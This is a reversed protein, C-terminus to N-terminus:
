KSLYELVEPYSKRFNEILENFRGPFYELELSTEEAKGVFPPLIVAANKYKLAIVSKTLEDFQKLLGDNLEPCGPKFRVIVKKAECCPMEPLDITACLRAGIYGFKVDRGNVTVLEPIARGYLYLQFKRTEPMGAYQGERPSIELELANKDPCATKFYTYAYETAYDKSDGNDEYMRGKGEGGPFVSIRACKPDNQVDMVSDDYMPIVAGAKVYVPYELISFERNLVQGGKLLTGTRWEFWDNGEPLWVKVSSVGKEMPAGIPAILMDDGFMFERDFTYSEEANPYDYYMPRCLSVGTDYCERSMTYIYPVLNYRLRIAEKQANFFDGRFNWIEKNLVANKTSHTRLIPTFVGYQMWRTYLEPDLVNEKDIWKPFMHGGIDHSWYGYLVNSACNTFYPQYELSKWSVYTDGSFGIQYRHNGLGGWRHYLMPRHSSNREMDSFFLYNLWWTNSLNKLKKDNAYQQWDLWWFDVGDKEMPHLVVDFLTQVLKKNSGEWAIGKGTAPDVGMKEAFEKYKEEHSLMGSAPHLNLTTKLNRSATWDLFKQPDPFLGRNWTWGTWGPREGFEDSAGWGPMKTIHWDMDVVLVDVPINFADFNDVLSRIEKDSYSWYRSWWYGFAYRPPMPVKGAILSFDKLVSKYNRGYAMFYWDQAYPNKRTKVWSWSSDDFLFSGSDDILTWGEKSLLGDEIPMPTTKDKELLMNGDYRDLTRYTGKLNEVQKLGPKWEFSRFANKSKTERSQDLSGASKVSLNKATFRGSGTKYRLQMKETTITLWGGSKKVKYPPVQLDRNVVVFSPDDTFAGTSDWEMRVVGDTLVTFRVNKDVKVIAKDSAKTPKQAMLSVSSVLAMALLLYNLKKM